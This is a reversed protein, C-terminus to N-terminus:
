TTGVLVFKAYYLKKWIGFNTSLSSGRYQMSVAFFNCVDFIETFDEYFTGQFNITYWCPREKTFTFKSPQTSLFYVFQSLSLQRLKYIKRENQTFSLLCLGFIECWFTKLEKLKVLATYCYKRRPEKKMVPSPKKLMKPQKKQAFSLSQM